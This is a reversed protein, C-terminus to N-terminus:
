QRLGGHTRWGRPAARERKRSRGSDTKSYPLPLFANLEAAYTFTEGSQRATVIRSTGLDLGIAKNM